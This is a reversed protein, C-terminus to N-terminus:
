YDRFFVNANKSRWFQRLYEFNIAPQRSVPVVSIYMSIYVTHALRTQLGSRDVRQGRSLNIFRPKLLFKQHMLSFLFLNM